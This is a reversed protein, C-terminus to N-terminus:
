HNNWMGKMVAELCYDLKKSVYEVLQLAVFLKSSILQVRKM